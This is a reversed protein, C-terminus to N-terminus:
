AGELKQHTKTVPDFYTIAFSYTSLNASLVTEQNGQKWALELRHEIQFDGDFAAYSNRFRM